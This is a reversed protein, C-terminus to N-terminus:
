AGEKGTAKAIAATAANAADELTVTKALEGGFSIKMETEGDLDLAEAVALLMACVARCAELLEPAAAMLRANSEWEATMDTDPHTLTALCYPGNV